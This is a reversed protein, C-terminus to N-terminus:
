DRESVPSSLLLDIRGTKLEDSWVEMGVLAALVPLIPSVSVAWLSALSSLGGEGADLNFAFLAASAALFGAISLATIYLGSVMGLTRRFTVGVASM